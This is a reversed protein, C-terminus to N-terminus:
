ERAAVAVVAQVAAEVDSKKAVDCRLPLAAAGISAAVDRAAREELDVVAVRAGERVFTEAMCKGLGSGAGTVLAVKGALRM